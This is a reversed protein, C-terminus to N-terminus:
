TSSSEASDRHELPLFVTFSTGEGEVSEVQISGRHADVIRKVIALGLGLGDSSGGRGSQVFREFIREKMDDPIGIGQDRISIGIFGEGMLGDDREISITDGDHSFKIANHILNIFLQSLRRRDGHIFPVEEGLRNVIEIERDRAIPYTESVSQELMNKVDVPEVELEVSRSEFRVLELLDDILLELKKGSLFLTEVLQKQNMNLTGFSDGRLAESTTLIPTLPTRLEHSLNEFFEKRARSTESLESFARELQRSSRKLREVESQLDENRDALDRHDESVRRLQSRAKALALLQVFFLAAFPSVMLAEDVDRESYMWEASRGLVLAGTITGRIFLPFALISYDPVAPLPHGSEPDRGNVFVGLGTEVVDAAIMNTWRAQNQLAEPLKRSAVRNVKKRAHNVSFLVSWSAEFYQEFACNIVSPSADDWGAASLLRLFEGIRRHVGPSNGTTDRLDASDSKEIM